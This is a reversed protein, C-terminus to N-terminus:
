LSLTIKNVNWEAADLEKGDTDVPVLTVALDGSGAVLARQDATLELQANVSQTKKGKATKGAALVAINGLYRKDDIATAATAEPANIFVRLLLGKQSSLTVGDLKLLASADAGKLAATEKAGAQVRFTVPKPGHHPAPHVVLKMAKKDEGAFATPALLTSALASALLVAALRLSTSQPM